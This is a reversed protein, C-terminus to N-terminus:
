ACSPAKRSAANSLDHWYLFCTSMSLVEAHTVQRLLKRWGPLCTLLQDAQRARCIVFCSSSSFAFSISRFRWSCSSRCRLCSSSSFIRSSLLRSTLPQMEKVCSCGVNKIHGCCYIQLTKIDLQQGMAHMARISVSSAAGPQPHVSFPQLRYLASLFLLTLEGAFRHLKGPAGRQRMSSTCEELCLENHAYQMCSMIIVSASSCIHQLQASQHGDGAWPLYCLNGM